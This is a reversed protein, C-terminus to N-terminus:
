ITQDLHGKVAAGVSNLEILFTDHGYLSDLEFYNVKTNGGKKIEYAIEKQQWFPFLIDSQVGLVLTHAKILSLGQRLDLQLDKNPETKFLHKVLKSTESLKVLNSQSLDFM